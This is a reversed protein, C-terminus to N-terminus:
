KYFNVLRYITMKTMGAIAPVRDPLTLFKTSNAQCYNIGPKEGTYPSKLACVVSQFMRFETHSSTVAELPLNSNTM